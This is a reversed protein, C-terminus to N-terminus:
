DRSSLSAVPLESAKAWVKYSAYLKSSNIYIWNERKDLHHIKSDFKGVVHRAILLEVLWAIAFPAVLLAINPHDFTALGITTSLAVTFKALYGRAVARAVNEALLPPLFEPAVPTPAERRLGGICFLVVVLISMLVVAYASGDRCAGRAPCAHATSVWGTLLALALALRKM